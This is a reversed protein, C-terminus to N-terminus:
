TYATSDRVQGFATYRTQVVEGLANRVGNADEIGRVTHSLQGAADYFFRTKNGAQDTTQIRRGLAAYVHRTVVGLADTESLVRGLDDDGVAAERDDASAAPRIQDLTKVVKGDVLWAATDVGTAYVRTLVVR